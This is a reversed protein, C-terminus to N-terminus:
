KTLLKEEALLSAGIMGAYNGAKAPLIKLPTTVIQKNVETEIKKINVFQGMGGSLVIVDPDFINALSIFGATLYLEWRNHVATCFEDEKKLESIIDYTTLDEINKDKLISGAFSKESGAMEKATILYGTGSALCEFCDYYGCTCPRKKNVGFILHGIEAAAGSKGRLLRGNVIIGGGIGTGLTVAVTNPYGQAAGVKYEAYAAANADNEVFTFLDFKKEFEEKIPFDPYGSPLNGTSSIIKSNENNVAGATAVAIASLEYDRKFKEVIQFVENFIAQTTYPTKASLVESVIKGDNIVAGSIKTGGIDIGAINPMKNEAISNDM